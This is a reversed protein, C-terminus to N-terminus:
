RRTRLPTALLAFGGINFNVNGRELLRWAIACVLIGM